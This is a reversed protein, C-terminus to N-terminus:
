PWGHRDREHMMEKCSWGYCGFKDYQHFKEFPMGLYYIM